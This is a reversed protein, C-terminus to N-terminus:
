LDWDSQPLDRCSDPFRPLALLAFFLQFTLSSLTITKLGSPTTTLPNIDIKHALNIVLVM